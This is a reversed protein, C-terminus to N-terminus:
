DERVAWDVDTACSQAIGELVPRVQGFSASRDCRLRVTRSESSGAAQFYADIGAAFIAPIDAPNDIRVRESGVAYLTGGSEDPAVTLTLFREAASSPVSSAVQDPVEVKFREAAIFQCALMFFIILLFVVDIVPTMDFAEGDVSRSNFRPYNM